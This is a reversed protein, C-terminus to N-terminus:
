LKFKLVVPIRGTACTSQGQMVKIM